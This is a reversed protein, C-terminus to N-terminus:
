EQWKRGRLADTRFELRPVIRVSEAVPVRIDVGPGRKMPEITVELTDRVVSRQEEITFTEWADLKDLLPNSLTTGAKAELAKIQPAYEADLLEVMQVRTGPSVKSKSLALMEADFQQRLKRAEAAARAAEADLADAVARRRAIEPAYHDLLSAVVLDDVFQARRSVCGGVPCRYQPSKSRANGQTVFQVPTGCVGCVAIGSLLHRAKPGTTSKRRPDTLVTAMRRYEDVSIIPEWNGAYDNGHHRRIGAYSPTLLLKRISRAPRGNGYRRAIEYLTLGELVGAVMARVVAADSENVALTNVTKGEANKKTAREYGFPPVGHPIGAKANALLARRTRKSTLISHQEDYIGRQKWQPDDADLVDYDGVVFVSTGYRMAKGVFDVLEEIKRTLRSQEYVVIVDVDLSNIVSTCLKTFGPREKRMYKSASFENDSLVDVVTWGKDACEERCVNEQEDVSRGVGTADRSARVYIYARLGESSSSM